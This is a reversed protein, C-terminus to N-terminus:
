GRADVTGYKENESGVVWLGGGTLMLTISAIAQTAIESESAMETREIKGAAYMEDDYDAGSVLLFGLLLGGVILAIGAYKLYKM